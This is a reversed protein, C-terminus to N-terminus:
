AGLLCRPSRSSSTHSSFSRQFGDCLWELLRKGGRGYLVDHPHPKDIGRRPWKAEAESKAQAVEERSAELWDSSSASLPVVVAASSSPAEPPRPDFGGGVLPHPDDGGGGGGGSSGSTACM